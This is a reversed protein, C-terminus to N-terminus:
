KTQEIGYKQQHQFLGKLANYLGAAMTFDHPEQEFEDLRLNLDVNRHRVITQALSDYVQRMEGGESGIDM